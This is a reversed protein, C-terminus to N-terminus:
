ALYSVLSPMTKEAEILAKREDVDIAHVLNYVTFLATCIETM